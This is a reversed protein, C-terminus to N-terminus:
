KTTTQIRIERKINKGHGLFGPSLADPGTPLAPMPETITRSPYTPTPGKK